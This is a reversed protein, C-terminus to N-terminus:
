YDADPEFEITVQTVGLTSTSRLRRAGPLGSLATEIPIAVRAELEESGMAPNQVIVNFIPAALDPFVDRPLERLTVFGLASCAIALLVAVLPRRFSEVILRQIM